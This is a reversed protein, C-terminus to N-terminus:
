VKCERLSMWFVSAPIYASCASCIHTCAQADDDPVDLVCEAPRPLPPESVLPGVGRCIARSLTLLQGPCCVFTRTKCTCRLSASERRTWCEAVSGDGTMRGVLLLAQDIVIIADYGCGDGCIALPVFGDDAPRRRRRESKLLYVRQVLLM